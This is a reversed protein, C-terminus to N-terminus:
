HCLLFSHPSYYNNEPDAMEFPPIHIKELNVGIKLQRRSSALSRQMQVAYNGIQALV